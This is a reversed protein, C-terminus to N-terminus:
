RLPHVTMKSTLEADVWKGQVRVVLTGRRVGTTDTGTIRFGFDDGFVILANDAARQAAATGLVGAAVLSLLWAILIGVTRRSPRTSM